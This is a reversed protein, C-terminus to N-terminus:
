RSRRGPADGDPKEKRPQDRSVSLCRDRPQELHDGHAQADYPQDDCPRGQNQDRGGAPAASQGLSAGRTIGGYAVSLRLCTLNRLLLLRRVGVFLHFFEVLREGLLEVADTAAALCANRRRGKRFRGGEEMENLRRNSALNGM